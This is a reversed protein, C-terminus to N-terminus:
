VPQPLFSELVVISSAFSSFIFEFDWIPLSIFHLQAVLVGHLAPATRAAAAAAPATRATHSIGLLLGAAPVGPPLLEKHHLGFSILLQLCVEPTLPDSWNQLITGYWIM